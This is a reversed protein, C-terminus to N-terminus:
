GGQNDMLTTNAVRHGKALLLERSCRGTAVVLSFIVQCQVARPQEEPSLRQRPPRVPGVAAEAERGEM